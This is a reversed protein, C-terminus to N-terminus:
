ERRLVWDVWISAWGKVKFQQRLAEPDFEQELWDTFSIGTKAHAQKYSELMYDLLGTKAQKIHLFRFSLQELAQEVPLNQQTMVYLAAGLGARDAGSKCHMLIPKPLTEFDAMLQKVVPVEPFNRSYLRRTVLQIGLEACAEQELAFHGSSEDGRFNLVTKLGIDQKLKKLLRPSPQNSRWMGPAFEYPPNYFPRLFGHDMLLLDIYAFVRVWPTIPQHAWTDRWRAYRSRKAM